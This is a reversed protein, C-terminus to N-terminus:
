LTHLSVIYSTARIYQELFIYLHVNGEGPCQSSPICEGEHLVTSGPCFCGPVCGFFCAFDLQYNECTRPCLTGCLQYEQGGTCEVVHIIMMSTTLVHMCVYYYLQTVELTCVCVCVCM